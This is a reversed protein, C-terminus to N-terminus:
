RSLIRYVEEQQLIDAELELYQRRLERLSEWRSELEANGHLIALRDEIRDLTEGLDKGRIRVKGEFNADGRVDLSSNTHNATIWPSAGNTTTYTNDYVSGGTGNTTITFYDGATTTNTTAYLVGNNNNNMNSLQHYATM